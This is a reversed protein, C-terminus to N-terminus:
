ALEESTGYLFTMTGGHSSNWLVSNAQGTVYLGSKERYKLGMIDEYELVISLFFCFKSTQIQTLRDGQIPLVNPAQTQMSPFLTNEDSEDCTIQPMVDIPYVLYQLVVNSKFKYAPTSGYNQITATAAFAGSEANYHYNVAAPGVYARLQKNIFNQNQQLGQEAYDATRRTHHLTRWVFGLGIITLLSGTVSAIFMWFAWRAMEQQAMLDRFERLETATPKLPANTKVVSVPKKAEL